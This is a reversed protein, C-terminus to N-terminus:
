FRHAGHAGISMIYQLFVQNDVTDPRSQDRNYQLRVRSFESNSFDIMASERKPKHGAPNLVTNQLAASVADAKVEDYRVGTRWRPMFQYVAQAYWGSQNGDIPVDPSGFPTFSGKEARRFYEGQFKLNTVAANGNPAWKWVFDAINLNSKGTFSDLAAPDGTERNLAHANLRSLGARWSNSVGADGGIHVFFSRTGTGNIASGGAPFGDGRFAEAGFEMLFSEIPALWRVQIGDDGLQNALMARYPLPADVFDWVHAHRENLYGIGSFFRGAQLTLGEQLGITRIFAEEVNATNDSGLAITLNGFFKDDVNANLSIESEGLSLGREGPGTEPGLAFGPLVYTAPDQSLRGYTGNFIVGIAPNFASASATHAFAQSGSQDFPPNMQAQAWSPLLLAIIARRTLIQLKM